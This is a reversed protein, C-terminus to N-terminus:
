MKEETDKELPTLKTKYLGRLESLVDEMSINTERAYDELVIELQRFSLKKIPEWGFGHIRPVVLGIRNLEYADRFRLNQTSTTQQQGELISLYQKELRRRVIYDALSRFLKIKIAEADASEFRISSGYISNLKKYIAEADM